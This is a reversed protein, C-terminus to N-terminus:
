ARVPVKLVLVLLQLLESEGLIRHHLGLNLLNLPLALDHPLTALLDLSRVLAHLVAISHHLRSIAVHRLDASPTYNKLSFPSHRHCVSIFDSM